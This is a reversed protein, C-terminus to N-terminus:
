EKIIVKSVSSKENRVRVNYVGVSANGINITHKTANSVTSIYVVQGLTFNQKKM